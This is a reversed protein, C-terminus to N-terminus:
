INMKSVLQRAKGEGPRPPGGLLGGGGMSVGSNTIIYQTQTLLILIIRLHIKFKPILNLM